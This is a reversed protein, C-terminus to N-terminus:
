NGNAQERFEFVLPQCFSKFNGMSGLAGLMALEQYFSVMMMTGLSHDSDRFCMLLFEHMTFPSDDVKVELAM